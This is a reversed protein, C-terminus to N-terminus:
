IDSNKIITLEGTHTGESLAVEVIRTALREVSVFQNAMIYPMPGVLLNLPISKGSPLYRRGYIMGPQFVVASHEDSLAAFEGAADLALEKGKAYAFKNTRLPWPIQAGLLVVKKIGAEGAAKIANANTMGNAFVKQEFSKKSFTPTPASGVLCILTDASALLKNDPTSADGSSWCVNNSWDEDQLHIPKHGTRSLCIAHTDSESLCKAVHTGVFGNGGYIVVKTKEAKKTNSPQGEILSEDVAKNM